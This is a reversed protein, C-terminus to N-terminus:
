WKRTGLIAAAPATVLASASATIIATAIISTVFDVGGAVKELDEDSLEDLDIRPKAPIVFHITDPTEEHATMVLTEPLKTGLHEEFMAKPDALFKAKFDDDSWARAVIKAELERRSMPTPQTENTM